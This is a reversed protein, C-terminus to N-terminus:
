DFEKLKNRYSRYNQIEKFYIKYKLSNNNLIHKIIVGMSTDFCTALYIILFWFREVKM